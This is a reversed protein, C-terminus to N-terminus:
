AYAINYTSLPIYTAFFHGSMNNYKTLTDNKDAEGTRQPWTTARSKREAQSLSGVSDNLETLQLLLVAALETIGGSKLPTKENPVTNASPQLSRALIYWVYKM